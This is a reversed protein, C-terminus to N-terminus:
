QHRAEVVASNFDGIEVFALAIGDDEHMTKCRALVHVPDIRGPDRVQSLVAAADDREVISAVAFGFLEVVGRLIRNGGHRAVRERQHIM